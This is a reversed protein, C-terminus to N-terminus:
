RILPKGDKEVIYIGDQFVRRDLNHVACLQEIQAATQSVKEKNIGTLTIEQGKFEINVGKLVKLKRPAKEGLFNDVIFNDGDVKMTMPFHSYVAKMRYTIGSRVGKVMNKIHGAVTGVDARDFKKRSETSVVVSHGEKSLDVHKAKFGRKDEGGKYKVTFQRGTVGFEVDEPIEVTKSFM